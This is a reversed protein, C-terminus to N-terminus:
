SNRLKDFWGNELIEKRTKNEGLNGVMAPCELSDAPCGSAPSGGISLLLFYFAAVSALMRPNQSLPLQNSVPLPM